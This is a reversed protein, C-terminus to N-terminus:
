FRILKHALWYFGLEICYYGIRWRLSPTQHAKHKITRFEKKLEEPGYIGNIFGVVFLNLKSDEIVEEYRQEKPVMEPILHTFRKLNEFSTKSINRTLSKETLVYHYYAKAIHVIRLESNRLIQTLFLVDECYDIGEIFRANVKDCISRRILKHWLSGFIKKNYIAYLVDKANSSALGQTVLQQRGDSYNVFYDTIVIDAGESKAKDVMEELMEPEVWDDSDAHIFYEGTAHGMGVQRASAVGGSSKNVVRIRKEKSAYSRIIELSNDTSGDNVIVLEWYPFSQVIFSEISRKLTSESNYVPMIISVLPLGM